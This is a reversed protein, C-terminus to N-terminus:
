SGPLSRGRCPSQFERPFELPSISVGVTMGLEHAIDIISHMHKRGAAHRETSTKLGAFDPNEFVSAGGFAKTGVTDGDVRFEEGFWHLATTTEKM